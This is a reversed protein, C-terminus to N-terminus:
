RHCRDSKEHHGGRNMNNKQLNGSLQYTLSRLSKFAEIFAAPNVLAKGTYYEKLATTLDPTELFHFVTRGRDDLTADHLAHGKASLFASLYLDKLSTSEEPPPSNM